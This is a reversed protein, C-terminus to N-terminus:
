AVNSAETNPLMTVVTAEPKDIVKDEQLEPIHETVFKTLLKFAIIGFVVWQKAPFEPMIEAIAGLLLTTDAILKLLAPTKKNYNEVAISYKKNLISM